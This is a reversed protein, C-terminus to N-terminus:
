KNKVKLRLLKDRWDEKNDQVMKLLQMGLLGNMGGESGTGTGILIDPIIKIHGKGIEEM